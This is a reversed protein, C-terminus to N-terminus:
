NKQEPNVPFTFKFVSGKDQESEVWIKGGHKEIFEKCLLLGLGTSPEGDTGKRSTKENLLFLKSILDPSMGIGSDSIQIEISNDSRQDAIVSVKGGSPTFKIANSVLNRVVGDFMHNDAFVEMEDPIIVAIEIRKKEANESLVSICKEISNKLNIKEPVFDMRGRMLRSWELLNELLSYINTASTKMSVVLDRIEVKEMTLFDESLIETAGVFSSLPGRLDHALISFFKDKSANLENLENNMEILAEKQTLLEEKQEEILHRRQELINNKDQLESTKVAVLKELLVKQNKLKRVRSLFIYAIISIIALIMIIRFLLTGWWPPLIIVTLSVGDYNWAGDNNSAKVKFTYEGPNLNTYTVYRRSANTYNWESEFGDMIYAYQNKEPYTYNIANFSFSFVSQRWSLRIEKAESIHVPFQTEPGAYVVPKNFIQFDTIYVPPIFDNNKISDPYFSNFGNFGGFYLEGERTKLFSQRHFEDAQLGDGESYNRFEQTRPDFQSIGNATTIWLNGDNGTVIARISNGPLGDTITYNKIITGDPKCYYMGGSASGVWLNGDTDKLFANIINDPFKFVKFSNTNSDYLNLGNSTGIWMNKENDEYYFWSQNSSISGPNGPDVRFRRIVGKNKDFLETEVLSASLWLINDHDVNLTWFTRASVSNPNSKDPLYTYFRGTKRDYRNLGADYTGIWIDHDKDETISLIANGSISYPNSPDHKFVKFNGTGPDYVNLGGGDTGIWILGQYDEHFSLVSNYSLSKTDNSNNVFLEFREKKPNYYNIGGSSTGIWLIGERDRYLCWIGDSTLGDINTQDPVIYEFNGTVKDFRNLGGHDVGLLLYRDSEPIIDLIRNQNPGTGKDNAPYIEFNGSLPNYSFFGSGDTAIWIKDQNDIYLSKYCVLGFDISPDNFKEFKGSEPDFRNIGSNFSAIWLYGKSDESMMRISQRITITSGNLSNEFPYRIFSNTEPIWKNLCNGVTLIWLNGKKDEIISTITDGEISNINGHDNKFVTFSDEERNYLNLGNLTGIWLRNSSDEYICRINNNSITGPQTEDYRYQILNDSDYKDLGLSTGIWLYDKSDRFICYVRNSSLGENITLHEFRSRQTQALLYINSTFCFFSVILLRTICRLGILKPSFFGTM